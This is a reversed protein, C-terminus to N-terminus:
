VGFLHRERNFSNAVQTATSAINSVRALAIQGKYIYLTDVARKGILFKDVTGLITGTLAASTSVLQGNKYIYVFSADYVGVLQSWSTDSPARVFRRGLNTRVDFAFGNGDNLQWFGAGDAVGGISVDGIIVGSANAAFLKVWLGITLVSFGKTFDAGCDIFDDTGDFSLCWLGSPLRTWTAGTIAGNLANGSYDYITSGQMPYGPYYLVSDTPQAVLRDTVRKRVPYEFM